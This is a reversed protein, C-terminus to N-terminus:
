DLINAYDPRLRVIIQQIQNNNSAYHREPIGNWDSITQSCQCYGPGAIKTREDCQFVPIPMDETRPRSFTAHGKLRFIM